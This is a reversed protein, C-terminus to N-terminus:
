NSLTKRRCEATLARVRLCRKEGQLGVITIEEQGAVHSTIVRAVKLM